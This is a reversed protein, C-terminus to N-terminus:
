GSDSPGRRRQRERQYAELMVNTEALKARAKELQNALHTAQNQRKTKNARYGQIQMELDTVDARIAHLEREGVLIMFDLDSGSWWEHDDFSESAIASFLRTHLHRRHDSSLRAVRHREIWSSRRSSEDPVLITYISDLKAIHRVSGSPLEGLYFTDPTGDGDRLSAMHRRASDLGMEEKRITAIFDNGWPKVAVVSIDSRRVAHCNRSIVLAMSINKLPSPGLEFHYVSLTIGNLIDGQKLPADPIAPLLLPM